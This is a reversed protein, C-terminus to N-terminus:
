FEWVKIPKPFKGFILIRDWLIVSFGLLQSFEWSRTVSSKAGADEFM